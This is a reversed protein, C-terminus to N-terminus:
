MKDQIFKIVELRVEDLEHVKYTKRTKTAWKTAFSIEKDLIIEKMYQMVVYGREVGGPQKPSGSLYQINPPINGRGTQANYSKLAETLAKEMKDFRTQQPLPNLFLIDGDWIIVLIWHQDQNHPLFYIRNQNGEKLKSAVYHQFENNLTFTAGPDFFAICSWMMMRRIAIYASIAAQGIMDFELLAKLNEPLIYIIKENGFVFPDCPIPVSEGSEKMTTTVHNYLFKYESPVNKNLKVKNFGKRRQVESKPKLQGVDKKKKTLNPFIILHRPWALHSGVAQRIIEIEGPVPVPVFADPQIHGDVSVRVHGAKLPVGHVSVNMEDEDFVTGFAVKNEISEVALECSRPGKKDTPPPDDFAVCDDNVILEKASPPKVQAEEQVPLYSSKESMPSYINSANFLAKLEAMERRTRELEEVLQQDRALLEAKTIRCKKQKPLNFFVIPTVYGGVGQVRGSHEPTQLATTLVDDTGSPKFEGNDKKELLEDIKSFIKAQDEDIEQNKDKPMRAKKWFIARDPKEGRELNGKKIEEEQLGIYGKRSLRHHYKRKRVRQSQLTRLSLWKDDTRQAVFRKWAENGVFHYKKPPKTFYRVGNVSYGQYTLVYFSPKGALWRITEFVHEGNERIEDNVKKEFWDAFLRNHEGMLWHVSKQKGRHIEELYEKHM